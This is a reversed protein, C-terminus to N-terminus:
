VESIEARYKIKQKRKRAKPKQKRLYFKLNSKIQSKEVKRHMTPVKGRLAPNAINRFNQFTVIKM